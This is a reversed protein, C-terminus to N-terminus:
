IEQPCENMQGRILNIMLEREQKQQIDRYRRRFLCELVVFVERPNREGLFGAKRHAWSIAAAIVNGIV